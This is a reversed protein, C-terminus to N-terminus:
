LHSIEEVNRYYELYPKLYKLSEDISRRLLGINRLVPGPGSRFIGTNLFASRSLRYLDIPSLKGKNGGHIRYRFAWSRICRERTIWYDSTRLDCGGPTDEDHVVPLAEDVWVRLGRSHMRLFLEQDEATRAFRFLRADFGGSREFYDRRYFVVAPMTKSIEHIRTGSIFNRTYSKKLERIVSESDAHNPVILPALCGIQPFRRLTQIAQFNIEPALRFDDDIFFLIDAKSRRYGENRAESANPENLRIHLINKLIDPSLANELFGEPNQDVVIIESDRLTQGLLCLILAELSATRKYTPIIVSLATPM